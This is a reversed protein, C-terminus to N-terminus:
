TVHIGEGRTRMSKCGDTDDFVEWCSTPKLALPLQACLRKAIRGPELTVATIENGNDPERTITRAIGEEVARAALAALSEEDPTAVIVLYNSDRHWAAVM